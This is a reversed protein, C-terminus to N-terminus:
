KYFVHRGIRAVRQRSKAWDPKIYTAHFHLAGQLRPVTKGYYVAEAVRWARQWEEGGPEPLSDFETWSFAGVYRKRLPDWNKQYVVECITRPYHRSAQRNLTVEAVAYQGALPEGRAEFYVNRALCDLNKRQAQLARNRQEDQHGKVANMLFGFLGALVALVAAVAWATRDARYWYIRLSRRWETVFRMIASLRPTLSGPILTM